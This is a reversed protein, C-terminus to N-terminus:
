EPSKHNLFVRMDTLARGIEDKIRKAFGTEKEAAVNFICQDDLVDYGIGVGDAEVNGFGPAVKPVTSTTMRWRKSGAFAPHQFLDPTKEEDQLLMQLGYFHRDVGRGQITKKIYKVHGDVAQHLLDRKREFSADSSIMADCFVQSALSVSRTTETRGHLFQRTQAAEYTGVTSGFVRRGAMQLAMQVFGDPSYGAEKILQKGYDTFRLVHLSYKAINALFEQKAEQVRQEVAEREETSLQRFADEFIPVAEVSPNSRADSTLDPDGRGCAGEFMHCLSMAPLGDAMSHEGIYGLYYKGPTDCLAIQM